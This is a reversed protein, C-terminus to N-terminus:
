SSYCCALLLHPLAKLLMGTRLGRVWGRLARCGGQGSNESCPWPRQSAAWEGGGGGAECGGAHATWSTASKSHTMHNVLKRFMMTKAREPCTSNALSQVMTAGWTLQARASPRQRGQRPGPATPFGRACPAQCLGSTDM